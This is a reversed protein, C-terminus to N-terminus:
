SKMSRLPPTSFAICSVCRSDDRTLKIGGAGEEEMGGSGGGTLDEAGGGATGECVGVCPM